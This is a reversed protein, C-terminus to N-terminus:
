LRQFLYYFLSNMLFLSRLQPIVDRRKSEVWVARVIMSIDHTTILSELSVSPIELPVTPNHNESLCEAIETTSSLIM